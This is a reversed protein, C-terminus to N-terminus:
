RDVEESLVHEFFESMEKACNKDLYPTFATDNMAKVEQFAKNGLWEQDIRAALADISESNNFAICVGGGVENLIKIVSSNENFIALLPRRSLLYPYIKSATYSPDNTGFALLADANQMYRLADSYRVRDCSEHVIDSLGYEQALPLIGPKAVGAPAYSTGIFHIKLRHRINTANTSQLARFFSRLALEMMPVVVGIYVWHISGASKDFIANSQQAGLREWDYRAGCFPQILTPINKLWAYRSHLQAPYAASVATIGSCLKLVRPEMWKHLVDMIAYKFRGGPPVILPHDRYYENVWPDQYDMVFPVSFKRRWRPGLLHVEFVTTSFYVLDFHGSLLLSDGKRKLANLARFGLNGFGPMRTWKLGLADVHHINVNKPLGEALWDDIPSAISNASVALVEVGWGNLQFFPLLMRVRHMDPSNVPPFHPSIILLRKM